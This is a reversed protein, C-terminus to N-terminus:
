FEASSQTKGSAKSIGGRLHSNYIPQVDLEGEAASDAGMSGAREAASEAPPAGVEGERAAAAATTM